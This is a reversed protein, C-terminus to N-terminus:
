PRRRTRAKRRVAASKVGVRFLHLVQHALHVHQCRRELDDLLPILIELLLHRIDLTLMVPTDNMGVVGSADAFGGLLTGQQMNIAGVTAVARVKEVAVAAVTVVVVVVVATANMLPTDVIITDKM